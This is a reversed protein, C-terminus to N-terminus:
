INLGNTDVIVPLLSYFKETPALLAVSTAREVTVTNEAKLYETQWTSSSVWLLLLVRENETVVSENIESLSRAKYRRLSTSVCYVHSGAFWIGRQYGVAVAPELFALNAEHTKYSIEM